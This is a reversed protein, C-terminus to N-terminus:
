RWRPDGEEKLKKGKEDQEYERDEERTHCLFIDLILLWVGELFSDGIEEVFKEVVFILEEGQAPSAVEELGEEAALFIEKEGDSRM